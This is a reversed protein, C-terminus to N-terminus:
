VSECGRGTASRFILSLEGVEWFAMKDARPVPPACSPLVAAQIGSNERRRSLCRSLNRNRSILSSIQHGLAAHIHTQLGKYIRVLHLNGRLHHAPFPQGQAFIDSPTEPGARAGDVRACTYWCSHSADVACQMAGWVGLAVGYSHGCSIECYGCM